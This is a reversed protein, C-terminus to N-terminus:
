GGGPGPTGQQISDIIAVKAKILQKVKAPTYTSDPVFLTSAVGFATQFHVTVGKVTSGNALRQYGVVQTGTQWGGPNVGPVM